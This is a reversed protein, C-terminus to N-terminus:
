YALGPALGSTHTGRPPQGAITYRDMFNLLNLYCLVAVALYSRRTSLGAEGVLPTTSEALGGALSGYRGSSSSSIQGTGEEPTGSCSAEMSFESQDVSTSCLQAHTM